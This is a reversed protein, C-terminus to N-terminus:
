REELRKLGDGRKNEGVSPRDGSWYGVFASTRIVGPGFRSDNGVV